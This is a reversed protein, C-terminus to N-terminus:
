GSDIYKNIKRRAREIHGQVSTKKLGLEDAVQQLSKNEGVHRIFCQRQRETMSTLIELIIKRQEETIELGERESRMGEYIDPLIEMEELSVVQYVSNKHIGKEENPNKGTELWEIVFSMENIMSNILKKDVEGKHSNDLKKLKKRLEKRDKRYSLKLDDVWSM